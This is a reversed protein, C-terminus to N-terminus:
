VQEFYIAQIANIAENIKNWDSFRLSGGYDKNWPQAYCIRAGNFNVLNDVCDDIMLDGRIISKDQTIVINRENVLEHNFSELTKRIKYGLMDNFHSATVILVHHGLMIWSKIQKIAAKDIDVDDWFQRTNTFRWPDDFTKDFFDYSTIDQYTYSTGYHANCMQLLVENMNTITNDIDIAIKM